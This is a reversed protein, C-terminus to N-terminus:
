EYNVQKVKDGEMEFWAFRARVGTAIALKKAEDVKNKPVVIYFASPASGLARWVPISDVMNGGNEVRMVFLINNNPPPEKQLFIIDPFQGNIIKKDSGATNNLVRFRESQQKQIFTIVKKVVENERAAM